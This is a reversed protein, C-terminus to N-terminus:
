KPSACANSIAKPTRTLSSFFAPSNSFVIMAIEIHVYETLYLEWLRHLKVTRQGKDKGEKTLTWTEGGNHMVGFRRLRKLGNLLTKLKFPRRKIIEEMSRKIYFDGDQEGLQYLVKLINEEGMQHRIQRQRFARSIIGKKPAFFFSIFAITSIIHKTNYLM